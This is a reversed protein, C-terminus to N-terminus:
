LPVVTRIPTLRRVTTRTLTLLNVSSLDILVAVPATVTVVGPTGVLLALGPVLTGTPASVTVVGPTAVLARVGPLLVAPPASVTTLCAAGAVTATALLTAAPASVVVETATATTSIAGPIVTTPPATVTVIAPSALLTGEAAALDAAPTTVTVIPATASLSALGASLTGTPASVTVTGATASVPAVGPTLTGPPSSVTVSPATGTLTIGGPALVPAPASVTVTPSTASISAAGGIPTAASASVTVTPATATIMAAGASVTASPASVTVAPATATITAAGATLTAAPASVSVLCAAATLAALGALLTATPATVTVTPATATLTQPSGGATPVDVFRPRLTQYIDWRTRPDWLGYFEADSLARNWLRFDMADCIAPVETSGINTPGLLGLAQAGDTPIANSSDTGVLVGNVFLTLDFNSAIKFAIQQWQNVVTPISGAVENGYLTAGNRWYCFIRFGTGGTSVPNTRYGFAFNTDNDFVSGRALVPMYCDASSLGALSQPRIWAHGSFPPALFPFGSATAKDSNSEPGSSPLRLANGLTDPIVTTVGGLIAPYRGALDRLQATDGHVVPWCGVLGQAYVSGRNLTVGHIPRFGAASRPRKLM